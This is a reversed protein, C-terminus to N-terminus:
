FRVCRLNIEAAIASIREAAQAIQDLCRAIVAPRDTALSRDPPPEVEQLARQWRGLVDPEWHIPKLGAALKLDRQFQQAVHDLNERAQDAYDGAVQFFRERLPHEEELGILFHIFELNADIEQLDTLIGQYAPDAHDPGPLYRADDLLDRARSVTEALSPPSGRWAARPGRFLQGLSDATDKLAAAILRRLQNMPLVPWLYAHIVIATCGAVVLGAFRTWVVSFSGWEPGTSALYAFPLALGAQLGAISYRTSTLFVLAALFEGLLVWSLLLPFEPLRSTFFAAMIGFGFGALLGAAGVLDTKNQQGLNGTTAFFTAFFAVQQAGPLGILV